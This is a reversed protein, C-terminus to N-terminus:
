WCIEEKSGSLYEGYGFKTVSFISTPRKESVDSCMLTEWGGPRQGTGPGPM